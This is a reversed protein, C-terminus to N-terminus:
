GRVFRPTVHFRDESMHATGEKKEVRRLDVEILFRGEKNEIPYCACQTVRNDGM